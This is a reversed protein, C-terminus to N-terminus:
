RMTSHHGLAKSVSSLLSGGRNVGLTNTNSSHAALEEDEQPSKFKDRKKITSPRLEDGAKSARRFDPSEYKQLSRQSQGLFAHTGFVSGM